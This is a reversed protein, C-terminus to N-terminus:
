RHVCSFTDTFIDRELIETTKKGWKEWTMNLEYHNRASIRLTEYSSQDEWLSKIERAYDEAVANESLLIGNVGSIVMTSVGGTNPAISPLAYASAESFVMGLAEARTPLIFFSANLYLEELLANEKEVGKHLFGVCRIKDHNIKKPPYCGVITLEANMGAHLLKLLTDVAIDGGKRQWDVGSFLLKCVDKDHLPALVKERSPPPTLNCGFPVVFIKEVIAGYDRMASDAAWQSPYFLADAKKIMNYEVSHDYAVSRKTYPRGKNFYSDFYNNYLLGFTADNLYVIPISINFHPSIKYGGVGTTVFILDYKKRSLWRTILYSALTSYLNNAYTSDKGRMRVIIKNIRILAVTIVILSLPQFHDVDYYHSLQRYIHYNIGSWSKITLRLSGTVMLIRKKNTYTGMM